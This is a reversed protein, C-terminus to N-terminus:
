CFNNLYLVVGQEPFKFNISLMLLYEKGQMLAGNLLLVNPVKVTEQAKKKLVLGPGQVQSEIKSLLLFYLHLLLGHPLHGRYYVLLLPFGKKTSISCM